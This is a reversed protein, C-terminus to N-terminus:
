VLRLCVKNPGSFGPDQVIWNPLMDFRCVAAVISSGWNVDDFPLLWGLQVAVNAGFM